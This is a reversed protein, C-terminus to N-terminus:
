TLTIGRKNGLYRTMALRAAESLPSGARLAFDRLKAKYRAGAAAYSLQVTGGISM